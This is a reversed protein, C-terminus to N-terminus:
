NEYIPNQDVNEKYINKDTQRVTLKDRERERHTHTHTQIDTLRYMNEYRKDM